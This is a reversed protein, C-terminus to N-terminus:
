FRDNPEFYGANNRYYEKQVSYAAYAEAKTSEIYPAVLYHALNFTILDLLNWGIFSLDLIFLDMKIGDTMETSLAFVEDKGLDPQEALIYDVFYYRYAVIIGPIIFLLSWLLVHIGMMFKVFVCNWFYGSKYVMLLNDLRYEGHRADLFFRAQGIQLINVVCYGLIIGIIGSVTAWPAILAIYRALQTATLELQELKVEINVLNYGIGSILSFLLTVLFCPWYNRKLVVKANEKYRVRDFLTIM